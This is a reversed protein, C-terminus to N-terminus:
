ARPPRGPSGRGPGARRAARRGGVPRHPRIGRHVTGAGRATRVRAAPRRRAARDGPAARPAGAHGV